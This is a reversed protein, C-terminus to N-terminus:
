GERRSALLRTLRGPEVRLAMVRERDLTVRGAPSKRPKRVYRRETWTVEVLDQGRADSHHAALTAADVLLETPCSAGKELPVVVHAGPVGRAHMWVDHPRAVRLTLADNDAAGRGVLVRGGNSAAYEIFPSRPAQKARGRGPTAENERVGLAKAAEMWQKLLELTVAEAGDVEGELARVADLARQTEDLRAWMLREGRQIRKAKAFFGEAQQKAPRAPDLEVDLTGGTEWDELTARTAGRPIKAGQALLMRGIRQLRGVDDVRELDHEVAERRRALRKALGRLARVLAGRRLEAALADSVRLLEAGVEDAEGSPECVRPPRVREGHWTVVAAGSADLVSAEGAVAPLLRVRTVAGPDGLAIWVAGDDDVSASRVSRGLAHAKLAAILPHKSGAHFLPTRPLWGVGVVRPGVGVGLHRAGGPCWVTLSVLGTEPTVHAADLRGHTLLSLEAVLSM